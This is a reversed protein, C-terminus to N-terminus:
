HEHISCTRFRHNIVPYVWHGIDQNQPDPMISYFLESQASYRSHTVVVMNMDVVNEQLARQSMM